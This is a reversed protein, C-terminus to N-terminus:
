GEKDSITLLALLPHCSPPIFFFHGSLSLHKEGDDWWHKYIQSQIEWGLAIYLITHGQLGAIRHHSDLKCTAAAMQKCDTHANQYWNRMFHPQRPVQAFKVSQKMALRTRLVSPEVNPKRVFYNPEQPESGVIALIGRTWHSEINERWTSLPKRQTLWIGWM